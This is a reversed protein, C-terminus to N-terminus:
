HGRLYTIVRRTKVGEALMTLAVVVVDHSKNGDFLLDALAASIGLHLRASNAIHTRSGNPRVVSEVYYGGGNSYASMDGVKDGCIFSTWGAVCATTGCSIREGISQNNFYDKAEHEKVSAPLSVDTYTRQEHAKNERVILDRVKRAAKTNVTM